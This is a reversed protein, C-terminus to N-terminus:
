LSPARCDRQAALLQEVEACTPLSPQAGFKTCALAGAANAFALARNWSEGAARSVALGASFADGAATTDVVTVQLPNVFLQQPPASLYAGAEGRKLVVVRAGRAHLAECLLAPEVPASAGVLQRAEAANPTLVAVDFLEPPPQAPAPAPDLILEAGWRRALGAVYVATELPIELQMLWVAAARLQEQAADVDAPTLHANAGPAVCIANEGTASVTILAVGSPVGALMKLSRCDIGAERLGASMAVGFADDGVRGLFSVAAGLRAAAVAQNAGKGGPITRFEGGLITEGALPIHPARVVLDMNISGIVAVKHEAFTASM